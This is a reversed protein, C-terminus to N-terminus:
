PAGAVRARVTLYAGLGHGALGPLAYYWTFRTMVFVAAWGLAVLFVCWMAAALPRPAQVDCAQVFSVYGVETTFGLLFVSAVVLATM